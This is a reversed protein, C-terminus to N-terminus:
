GRTFFTAFRHMLSRSDVLKLTVHGLAVTENLGVSRSKGPEVRADGVSLPHGKPDCAIVWGSSERTLTCHHRSITEDSLVLDNGEARGITISQSELAFCLADGPRPVSPPSHPVDTITPQSAINGRRVRWEGPEWILWDHKYREAFRVGSQLFQRALTALSFSRM